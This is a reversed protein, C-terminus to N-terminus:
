DKYNIYEVEKMNFDFNEYKFTLKVNDSYERLVAIFMKMNDRFSTLYVNNLSKHIYYVANSTEHYYFEYGFEVEQYYLPNVNNFIDSDDLNYYVKYDDCAKDRKIIIYNKFIDTLNKFKVHLKVKLEEYINFLLLLLIRSKRDFDVYNIHDNILTLLSTIETWDDKEYDLSEEHIFKNLFYYRREDEENYLKEETINYVEIIENQIDNGKISSIFDEYECM